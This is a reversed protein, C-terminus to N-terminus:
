QLNRCEAHVPLVVVSLIIVSPTVVSLLVVNKLITRMATSQLFYCDDYANVTASRITISLTM